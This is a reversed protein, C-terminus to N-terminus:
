APEIRIASLLSDEHEAVQVWGDPIQGAVWSLTFGAGILWVEDDTRGELFAGTTKDTTTVIRIPHQDWAIRGSRIEPAVLLAEPHDAAFAAIEEAVIRSASHSNDLLQWVGYGQAGVLVALALIATQGYRKVFDAVPSAAVVVLAPLSLLILRGGFDLGATTSYVTAAVGLWYLTSIRLLAGSVADHKAAAVGFTVIPAAVLLGTNEPRDLCAVAGVVAVLPIAWAPLKHGRKVATGGVIALVLVVLRLLQAIPPQGLAITANMIAEARELPTIRSLDTTSSAVLRGEMVSARWLTDIGVGAVLGIGAAAPRAITSWSRESRLCDYALGLVVAIGFILGEGRVLVMLVLGAAIEVLASVRVVSPPISRVIGHVVLAAAAVGVAHAWVVQSHFLLPTAIGCIWFAALHNSRVSAGVLFSACVAAVISVLPAGWAGVVTSFVALLAPFAPHKVYPAWVDGAIETGNQVPLAVLSGDAGGFSSEPIAETWYGAQVWKSQMQYAGEDVTWIGSGISAQFLVYLVLLVIAHAGLRRLPVPNTNVYCRSRQRGSVALSRLVIPLERM